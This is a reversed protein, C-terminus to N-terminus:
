AAGRRQLSHALAELRGAVHMAVDARDARIALDIRRSLAEIETGVAYLESLLVAVEEQLERILEVAAPQRGKGTLRLVPAVPATAM